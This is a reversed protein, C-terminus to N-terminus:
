SAAEAAAVAVAGRQAWVDCWDAGPTSPTMVAVSLGARVARAKLSQAAAAGAPDADAFVVIRRVGAPWTYAALNGACYAAVTPLGSARHAAQATEIGEAIGIVGQRADHLPICAGALPGAAGTLKKITPVPAKCGDATLYTRHLALVRGDPSVLPAVMAPWAGRNGGDWYTLHPHLRLCEPVQGALGRRRLYLSVPDGDSVPMTNAWLAANRQANSAQQQRQHADRQAKALALRRAMDAREAPTMLERRQATWVSSMGSRFDGFVGARGDEFLQCWGAKDSARGSTSFRQIRGREILEPAHGLAALIAARFNDPADRM